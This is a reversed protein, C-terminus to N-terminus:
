VMMTSDRNGSRRHAQQNMHLRNQLLVFSVHLISCQGHGRDHIHAYTSFFSDELAELEVDGLWIARARAADRQAYVQLVGGLQKSATQRMLKLGIFARPSLSVPQERAIIM